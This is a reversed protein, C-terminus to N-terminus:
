LSEQPIRVLRHNHPVEPGLLPALDEDTQLDHLAQASLRLLPAPEIAITSQDGYGGGWLKLRILFSTPLGGLCYTQLFRIIHDLSLGLSCAQSISSPTIKRYGTPEDLETIHELETSLYFDPVAYCPQLLGQRALAM